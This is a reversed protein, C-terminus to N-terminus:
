TASLGSDNKGQFKDSARKVSSCFAASGSGESEEYRYCTLVRLRAWWDDGRIADFASGTESAAGSWPNPSYKCMIPVIRKGAATDHFRRLPLCYGNWIRRNMDSKSRTEGTVRELTAAFPPLSFPYILLTFLVFVVIQTIRFVSAKIAFYAVAVAPLCALVFIAWGIHWRAFALWLAAALIVGFLARLNFKLRNM